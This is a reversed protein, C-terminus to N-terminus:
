TTTFSTELWHLVPPLARFRVDPSEVLRNALLRTFADVVVAGAESAAGDTRLYKEAEFLEIPSVAQGDAQLYLVRAARGPTVGSPSNWRVKITQAAAPVASLGAALVLLSVIRAFHANM